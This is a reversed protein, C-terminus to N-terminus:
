PLSAARGATAPRRRYGLVDHHRDWGHPEFYSRELRDGFRREAVRDFYEPAHWTMGYRGPFSGFSPDYPRFSIGEEAVEARIAEAEEAYLGGYLHGLGGLSLEGHVSFVLVGGPLLSSALREFLTEGDERDLHTFVSGSWILDYRGLRIRDVRWSSVLPRAGLEAACFRVGHADVDCATIRNAPVHQKLARLVRGHGCGFDLCSDVDDFSRGASELAAEVNEVASSAARLYNDISEESEDFLMADNRHVRGPIGPLTHARWTPAIRDLLRRGYRRALQQFM